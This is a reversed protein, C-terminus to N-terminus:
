RMGESRIHARRQLLTGHRASSCMRYTATGHSASRNNQEKSGNGEEM